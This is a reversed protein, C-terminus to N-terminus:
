KYFAREPFLPISAIVLFGAVVLSGILLLRQRKIGIKQIFFSMSLILLYFIIPAIKESGSLEILKDELMAYLLLYISIVRFSSYVWQNFFHIGFFVISSIISIIMPRQEFWSTYKNNM